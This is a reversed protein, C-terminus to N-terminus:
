LHSQSISNTDLPWLTFITLPPIEQYIKAGCGQVGLTKRVRGLALGALGPLPTRILKNRKLIIEQNLYGYM